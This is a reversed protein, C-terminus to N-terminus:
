TISYVLTRKSCGGTLRSQSPLIGDEYLRQNRLAHGRTQAWDALAAPGEFLEHQLCLIRM